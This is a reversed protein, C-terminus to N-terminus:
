LISGGPNGPRNMNLVTMPHGLDGQQVVDARTAHAGLRTALHDLPVFLDRLNKGRKTALRRAFSEAGGDLDRIVDLLKLVRVGRVSCYAILQDIEEDNIGGMVVTNVKVPVGTAVCEDLAALVQPLDNVGCLEHHLLPDLTDVSMNLVTVGAGVLRDARAGLLPHRSIVEIEEFGCETRLRRVADELPRYLAPDGGTLKVSRIGASRVAEAVAILDDVSLEAGPLTAVAEGSPRCFFCSRGCRANVTVRFQPRKFSRAFFDRVDM